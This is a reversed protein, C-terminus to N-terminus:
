WDPMGSRYEQGQSRLPNTLAREGCNISVGDSSETEGPRVIHDVPYVYDLNLSGFCLVKM